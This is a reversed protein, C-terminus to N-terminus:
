TGGPVGFVSNIGLQKIRALLYAGVKVQVAM